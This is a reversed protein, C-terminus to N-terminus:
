RKFPNVKMQALALWATAGVSQTNHYEWLTESGSVMFGTSVGDRDAAPISGDPSLQTKLYKIMLDYKATNGLLYYCLAMQATGENWVGDLDGASFDFGAGVTMNEEIFAIIEERDSLEENLALIMLSNTDLPLVGQSLTNGDAETGTYFCHYQPDYMSMVFQKAWDSAQEYEEAKDPQEGAIAGAIARFACMLDINHETSKHRVKIQQDDWGEYGGSFGGNDDKLSLTFDAARVAASLYINKKEVPAREAATCLALIAWAMNGTSTSVMYYDEQWRGKEWFGPLRITIRGGTISRGSDSKPNGSTYANRMRGDQFARDHEQAFVLSDALCQVHWDAGAEALAMLAVANDYLYAYDSVKQGNENASAIFGGSSEVQAALFGAAVSINSIEGANPKIEMKPSCGALVMVWVLCFCFGAKIPKNNRKM